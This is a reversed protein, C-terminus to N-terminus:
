RTYRDTLNTTTQKIRKISPLHGRRALRIYSGLDDTARAVGLSKGKMDYRHHVLGRLLKMIAVDEEYIKLTSTLIGYSDNYIRQMPVFSMDM